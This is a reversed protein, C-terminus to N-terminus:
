SVIQQRRLEEVATALEAPTIGAPDRFQRYSEGDKPGLVGADRVFGRHSDFFFLTAHLQDPAVETTHFAAAPISYTDNRVHRETSTEVAKFLNGTNQVISYAQHTKYTANQGKGDNWAIAYGANTADDVDDVADVQYAHDRGEGALIWSQAFPQHSHLMFDPNARKGDPMWVHLRFLEDISGGKLLSCLPVALLGQASRNATFFNKALSKSTLAAYIIDWIQDLDETTALLNQRCRERVSAIAVSLYAIHLSTEDLESMTRKIFSIWQEFTKGETNITSPPSTDNNESISAAFYSNIKGLDEETSKTANAVGQLARLVSPLSFEM